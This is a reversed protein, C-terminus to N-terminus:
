FILFDYSQRVIERENILQGKGDFLMEYKKLKGKTKTAIILEYNENTTVEFNLARQLADSASIENLFQVQVKEIKWRDYSNDLYAEITERLANRLKRKSTKVEVDDLTGNTSFEVSYRKGKHKFKAEYSEADGDIEKYYKTKGLDKDSSKLISIAEAPFTEASIREEFERKEQASLFTVNFLLFALFLLRM